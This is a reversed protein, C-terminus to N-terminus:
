YKDAIRNVDMLSYCVVSHLKISLYNASYLFLKLYNGLGKLSIIFQELYTCTYIDTGTTRFMYDM